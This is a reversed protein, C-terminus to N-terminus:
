IRLFPLVAELEKEFGPATEYDRAAEPKIWAYESHEFNLTIEPRAIEALYIHCIWTKGIKEDVHTSVTVAQLNKVDGRKVRLEEKLETLVREEPTKEDDIFGSVQSWLNKYIPVADSRKLLLLKGDCFVFCLIIPVIKEHTFDKQPM